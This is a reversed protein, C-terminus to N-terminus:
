WYNFMWQKMLGNASLRAKHKILRGYPFRKRKFYWISLITKLKGYKNKHKNRVENKKLKWRSRDKHAEAEKSIDIILDSKDSQLLTYNFICQENQQQNESFGM